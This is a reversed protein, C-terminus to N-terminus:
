FLCKGEPVFTSVSAKAVRREIGRLFDVLAGPGV